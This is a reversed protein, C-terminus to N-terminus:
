LGWGGSVVLNAGTVYRADDSLLYRAAAVADEVKGVVGAPIKKAMGALEEPPASGSDVFGPSICNATIGHPALERALARTLALVGMKAIYHATVATNAGVHDAGAMSFSVIRGFRRAIMGPAALKATFFVPDLNSQFMSRWGDVTEDLLKARHYPGAANVLADIRGLQAEVERVLRESQEFVSVDAAIAVVRAGADRLEDATAAGPTASTRWCIAVDWGRRALDLGIARGIGKAGGTILAVRRESM